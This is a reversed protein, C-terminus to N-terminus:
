SAHRYQELIIDVLQGADDAGAEIVQRAYTSIEMLM